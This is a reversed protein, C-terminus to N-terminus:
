HNVIITQQKIKEGNEIINLYYIGNPLTSTDIKIQKASSSYTKSYALKTTAHSYLLVAIESSKEKASKTTNTSLKDNNGNEIKDIILENGAPNPYAASWGSSCEISFNRYITSYGECVDTFNVTIYTQCCDDGYFNTFYYGQYDPTWGCGDSSWMFNNGALPIGLSPNYVACEGGTSFLSGQLVVQNITSNQIGSRWITINKRLSYGLFSAEIWQGLDTDNFDKKKVSVSNATSSMIQLGSSVTWSVSVGSPLNNVTFISFSNSCVYEPGPLTAMATQLTAYANLRGYGLENSKGNIYTYGGVKDASATLMNFVQQQTLNPNVSLMLAAVAAVEPCSCSTGGFYGTYSLYNTGSSPLSSGITPLSGCDNEKVPNYGASGAIDISWAEFTETAIQCSYARHSPAVIDVIQNFSSSTNATPSYQAQQDYRDSAGVSLVGEIDVNAPFQVYGNNGSVHNATNGTSFVVICGKQNRGNTVADVIASSIDPIYNPSVPGSTLFGWSNSIIHAGNNKAFTIADALATTSIGSGDSNFIRIPMIKCNPAIGAIGENNHSAAIVGSCSNGHNDNGTPSPDNVNGNGFNSGNLRVQRSNPLDSHNSTVGQDLVAIIIGSNGKTINWAEPANIDAGSTGSHGNAMIQGTNHLYFQNIFYSDSPITQHLEVKVIFNPHCFQVFGSLQYANAVELADANASVSLLQYLDTTKKVSVNYKRNLKDIEKQEIKNFQVVIEDTIGVELGDVTIYLPQVSKIGAQKIFDDKFSKYKSPELTVICISDNQWETNKINTNTLMTNKIEPLYVTRFSIIVKNKVENLFIKENYAYYYKESEPTIFSSILLLICILTIYYKVKM